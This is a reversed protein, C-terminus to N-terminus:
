LNIPEIRWTKRGRNVAEHDNTFKMIRDMVSAAEAKVKPLEAPAKGDIVYIPEALNISRWFSWVQWLWLGVDAESMPKPANGHTEQSGLGELAAFSISLDRLLHVRQTDIYHKDAFRSDVPDTTLEFPPLLSRARICVPHYHSQYILLGNSGVRWCIMIPFNSFSKADAFYQEPFHKIALKAIAASPVVLRGMKDRYTEIEMGVRAAPLNIGGSAVVDATRPVLESISTLASENLFIDACLPVVLSDLKYGVALALYHSCSFLLFKCNRAYYPGLDNGYHESMTLGARIWDSQYRVFHIAAYSEVEQFIPAAKIREEAEETACILFFVESHKALAPLNNPALLSACLYNIFDSTFPEGWVSCALIFKKSEPTAGKFKVAIEDVWVRYRKLMDFAFTAFRDIPDIKLISEFYDFLDSSKGHRLLTNGAELRLRKHDPFLHFAQRYVLLADQHRNARDYMVGLQIATEASPQLAWAKEVREIGEALRHPNELWAEIGQNQLTNALTTVFDAPQEQVSVHDSKRFMRLHLASVISKALKGPSDLRM